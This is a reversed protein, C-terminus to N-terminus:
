AWFGRAELHALVREAAGGLDIAAQRAAHAAQARADADGCWGAIAHELEAASSVAIAGGANVLATAADRLNATSPGLLVPLGLAAPEVANHGGYPELTGGMVAFDGARYAERLVGLSLLWLARGSAEGPRPRARWLEPHRPVVLFRAQPPLTRLAEELWREEGPRLSGWVCWLGTEEIGLRRRAEGREAATAPALSAASEYKTNGTVAIRESAVGLERWRAADTETQAAVATLRSVVPALAARWRRYRPWGRDSLRANAVAVRVGAEYAAALWAPWIETELLLLRHVGSASLARRAATLTEYPPATVALDGSRRLAERGGPTLASAILRDEPHHSRWAQVLPAVGSAEGVSAGHIWADGAPVDFGRRARLAATDGGQGWGLAFPELLTTLAGYWLPLRVTAQADGSM